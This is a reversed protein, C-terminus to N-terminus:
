RDNDVIFRCSDFDLSGLFVYDVDRRREVGV